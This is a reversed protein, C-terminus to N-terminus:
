FIWLSSWSQGIATTSCVTENSWTIKHYDTQQKRKQHHDLGSKDNQLFNWMKKIREMEKASRESSSAIQMEHLKEGMETSQHQNIMPNRAEVNSLLYYNLTQRSGNTTRRMLNSSIFEIFKASSAVACVLAASSSWGSKLNFPLCIQHFTYPHCLISFSIFAFITSSLAENGSKFLPSIRYKDRIM